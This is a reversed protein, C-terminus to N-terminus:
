SHASRFWTMAYLYAQVIWREPMHTHWPVCRLPIFGYWPIEFPDLLHTSTSLSYVYIKYKEPIWYHIMHGDPIGEPHTITVRVDSFELLFSLLHFRLELWVPRWSLWDTSGSCFNENRLVAPPLLFWCGKLRRLTSVTSATSVWPLLFSGSGAVEGTLSIHDSSPATQVWATVFPPFAWYEIWVCHLSTCPCAPFKWFFWQKSDHDTTNSYYPSVPSVFFGGWFM